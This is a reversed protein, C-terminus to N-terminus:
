NHTFTNTDIDYSSLILHEHINVDSNLKIRVYHTKGHTDIVKGEVIRGASASMVMTANQSVLDKLNISYNEYSPIHKGISRNIKRTSFVSFFAAPIAAIWRPMSFLVTSFLLRTAYRWVSFSTLITMIDIM